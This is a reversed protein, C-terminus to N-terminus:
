FSFKENFVDPFNEKGSWFNGSPVLILFDLVKIELLAGCKILRKMIALDESSPITSGGPHNHALAISVASNLIAKKFVERPSVVSANVTGMAVLEKEIIENRNNLHLAWLCERDAKAEEQLLSAISEPSTIKEGTGERIQLLKIKWLDFNIELQRSM